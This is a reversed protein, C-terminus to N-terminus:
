TITDALRDLLPGFALAQARESALRRTVAIAPLGAQELGNACEAVLWAGAYPDVAEFRRLARAFHDFAAGSHGAGLATQLAVADVLERGPFWWDPTAGAILENARQWRAQATPSTPGGNTLAAGALATMEAWAIDLTRAATAATDYLAHARQRERQERAAHAAVLTTRMQEPADGLATFIREADGLWQTSEGFNGQRARLEGLARSVCAALPAAHAGRAADLAEGLSEEAHPLHGARLYLEGLTLRALATVARDGAATGDAIAERAFAFAEGPASDYRGLAMLRHAEARQSLSGRIGAIEIAKRALTTTLHWDAVSAALASAALQVGARMTSDGGPADVLLTRLEQIARLPPKGRHVRIRERLNRVALAADPADGEGMWELALDCWTEAAAYRGADFATTALRVRLEALNRASPAHRQAVQLADLAADHAFGAAAREAAMLAYRYADTDLGAAHYHGAIADVSSPARLELLRAAVEHIRQRQREPLNRTIADALLAHTFSFQGERAADRVIVGASSAEDLAATVQQEPANATALLLELDFPAGLVAATTLILRAAPSLRQLRRELIFAIGPPVAGGTLPRWEWRTGGYWIGGAEAFAHLVHVVNLPIGETYEHLIRPFEDGPDADRFVVQAWRRLEDLTFRRLSLQSARARQTLRRRWDAASRAEDPRLTVVIFLREADVAGMLIDLVAWSAADAWQMDEFVLVLLRDRAVRRVARVIEEQLLSPTLAWDDGDRPPPIDPIIQPLARWEELALMGMSHLRAVIDTWPAYPASQDGDLCQATLLTGARLRIEPELHRVLATKGIGEEGVLSVLRADGRSALDLQGVLTRLEDERAVFADFDLRARAAHADAQDAVVVRDRGDRKARYLARDTAALLGEVTEGDQPASAVAVSVSIAIEEEPADRRACRLRACADRLREAIELAVESTTAPLLIVFEDSGRRGILDGTRLGRQLVKAVAWLLDDGQLRGYTANVRSFHDIDLLLLAVPQANGQRAGLLRAARQTWSARDAVSTLADDLLPPERTEVRAPLAAASTIGPIAIGDRVVEEFVKFVAPDFQRGVDRRMVDLAEHHSLAAKFSRRSVLADYVDAVTFIRAALPIEEGALGHPYGSGDWCEHHSEVIPRVEWPFDVGRLMAAGAAPHRKVIAWEEASLRGAKNLIAPPVELKGIDHLYAGVRYWVLAHAEVGMRRAIECTLDAVRDCHGATAHDKSEIRQAWRRVVDIFGDDLRRLRRTADGDAGRVRLQALARYARNLAVLAEAHRDNRALLDARERATEAVLLLDDLEQAQRDGQELLREARAHDGLERAVVGNLTLARATLAVDDLRRALDLAREASAHAREVNARDLAMEARAFELIAILHEDRRQTASAAADAFAQEAANWRKADAYLTALRAATLGALAEDGGSRYETVAQEALAIAEGTDGRLLALDALHTAGLAALAPRGALRARHRADTFDEAAAALIGERWRIRGRLELAEAIAVDMGSEDPLAIVAEVCDLAAGLNRNALHTRGVGLLLRAITWAPTGPVLSHLAREYLERASQTQGRLEALRGQDLLAELDPTTADPAPM